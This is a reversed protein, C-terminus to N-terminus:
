LPTQFRTTFIDLSVQKHWNYIPICSWQPSQLFADGAKWEEEVDDTTDNTAGNARQFQAVFLTRQEDSLKDEGEKISERRISL